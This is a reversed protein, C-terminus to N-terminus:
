PQVWCYPPCDDINGNTGFLNEDSSTCAQPVNVPIDKMRVHSAVVGLPWTEATTSNSRELLAAM